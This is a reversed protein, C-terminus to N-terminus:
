KDGKFPHRKEGTQAPPVYNPLVTPMVWSKAADRIMGVNLKGSKSKIKGRLMENFVLPHLDGKTPETGPTRNDWFHHMLRIVEAEFTITKPTKKKGAPVVVPADQGVQTDHAPTGTAPGSTLVVFHAVPLGNAQLKDEHERQLRLAESEIWPDGQYKNPKEAFRTAASIFTLESATFGVPKTSM